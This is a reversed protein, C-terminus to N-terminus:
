LGLLQDKKAQFEEETILGNDRLDAWKKLEDAASTAAGAPPSPSLETMKAEIARHIAEFPQRQWWNFMISNEDKTAQLLGRKAERGGLISFQIYGNTAMGAKKVQIASISSIPIDKDGALGHTGLAVLGKRRIRVRNPYLELQGGIGKARMLAKERAVHTEKEEFTSRAWRLYADGTNQARERLWAPIHPSSM